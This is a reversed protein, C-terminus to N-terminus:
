QLKTLQKRANKALKDEPDLKLCANYEAIAEDRNNLKLAADALGCHADPDDPALKVADKTRLYAGKLDGTSAYFRAIDLDEAVREEPTQLKTGPPNVRKLLRRGQPADPKANGTPVPDPDTPQPADSSSSSSSGGPASPAGPDEGPFPFRKDSPQADPASPTNTAPTPAPQAKEEGPFPFRQAPTAPAPGPQGAAPKPTTCPQPQPSTTCPPTQAPPTAPTTQAQALACAAALVAALRLARTPHSGM